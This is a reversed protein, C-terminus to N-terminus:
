SGVRFVMLFDIVAIVLAALKLKLITQGDCNDKKFVKELIFRARFNVFLALAGLVLATIKLAM